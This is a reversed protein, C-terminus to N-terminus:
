PPALRQAAAVAAELIEDRGARIGDLTPHVVQDPVIGHGQITSGDPGSARMGTFFIEFGGPTTATAINGNTGGSNEGLFTALQNDRLIQLCTEAASMARSDIL